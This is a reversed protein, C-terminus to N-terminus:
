VGDADRLLCKVRHMCEECDDCVIFKEHCDFCKIMKGAWSLLLYSKFGCHPCVQEIYLKKPSRFKFDQSPGFNRDIDLTPAQVEIFANNKFLSVLSSYVVRAEMTNRASFSFRTLMVRTNGWMDESFGFQYRPM